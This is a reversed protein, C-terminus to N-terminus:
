SRVTKQVSEYVKRGLMDNAKEVEVKNDNRDFFIGQQM